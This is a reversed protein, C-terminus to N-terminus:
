TTVPSGESVTEFACDLSLLSDYTEWLWEGTRFHTYLPYESPIEVFEWPHSYTATFRTRALRKLVARTYRRGLLRMWAGSVPLQVVPAVAVPLEAIRGADTTVVSPREVDTESDYFGPIPVGPVVSSSYDYGARALLEYCDDDIECAPARFGRVPGGIVSELIEKSDVIETRKEAKSISTLLRHSHTHSAVEHGAEDIREVLAPNDVAIESVVFFTATAGSRELLTLLRAVVAEIDLEVEPPDEHRRYAPTHAFRELDIGLCLSM